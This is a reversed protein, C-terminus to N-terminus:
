REPLAPLSAYLPEEEEIDPPPVFVVGDELVPGPQSLLFQTEKCLSFCSKLFDGTLHDLWQTGLKGDISRDLDDASLADLRLWDSALLFGWSSLFSPVHARYSHVEPFVTRLTRALAAHPKDDLFSFELGQVVIVGGPRLRRRLHEYFQRTYLAQAPGNDLMDVVDIIAVDYLGDDNEVFRRGDDFVLRARQDEFAGQHWSPLHERCLDIVEPDLDVMTARRVSRHALVERLTAGEGGGVILVDRPEAHCLLAPQVLVEHYLGEDDESSQIAGDLMLARGYNCTDAVLLNQYATRGQYLVRSLRFTYHDFPDSNEVFLVASEDALRAADPSGPAHAVPPGVHPKHHILTVTKQRELEPFLIL